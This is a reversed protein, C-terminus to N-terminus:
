AASSPTLLLLPLAYPPQSALGTRPMFCNCFSPDRALSFPRLRLSFDPWM